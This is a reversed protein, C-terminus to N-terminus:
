LIWQHIWHSPDDKAARSREGLQQADTIGDTYWIMLCRECIVRDPMLTCRDHSGREGCAECTAIGLGSYM